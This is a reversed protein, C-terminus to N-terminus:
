IQASRKPSIVGSFKVTDFLAARMDCKFLDCKTFDVLAFDNWCLTSESLERRRPQQSRKARALIVASSHITNALNACPRLESETRAM